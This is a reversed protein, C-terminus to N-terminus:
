IAFHLHEIEVKWVKYIFSLSIMSAVPEEDMLQEGHQEEPEQDQVAERVMGGRRLLRRCVVAAV